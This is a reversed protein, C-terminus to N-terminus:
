CTSLKTRCRPARRPPPKGWDSMQTRVSLGVHGEVSVAQGWRGKGELLSGAPSRPWPRASSVSTRTDSFCPCSSRASAGAASRSGRTSRNPHHGPRRSWTGGGARTVGWGGAQGSLCGVASQEREEVGGWGMGQWGGQAERQPRGRVKPVAALSRRRGGGRQQQQQQSSIRARFAAGKQDGQSPATRAPTAPNTCPPQGNM